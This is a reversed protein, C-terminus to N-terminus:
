DVNILDGALSQSNDHFHSPRSYITPQPLPLKFNVDVPCVHIIQSLGNWRLVACSEPLNMIMNTDILNREGKRLSRKDSSQEAWVGNVELNRVEEDIHITGTSKAISEALDIDNSRYNVHVGANEIVSSIVSDPDMDKPCNRLDTYSQSAIAMHCGMKRITALAETSQPSVSYKYEDIVFFVNPGEIEESNRKELAHIVALVFLRQLKLVRPNRTSGRVYIISKKQIADLLDLGHDINVVPMDVLQALDKFFKKSETPISSDIKMLESIFQAPRLQKNAAVKSFAIAADRDALRHVDAIDFNDSLGFVAACLEEIENQTQSSWPNWQPQDGNLDIYIFPRKLRKSYQELARLAINDSNPDLYITAQGKLIAQVMLSQLIVGKGSGTPGTVAIHQKNVLTDIISIIKNKLGKGFFFENKSFLKNSLYKRKTNPFFSKLNRVDTKGPREISSVQVFKTKSWDLISTTLRLYIVCLFVTALTNLFFHDLFSVPLNFKPLDYSQLFWDLLFPAPVILFSSSFLLISIKLIFSFRWWILLFIALGFVIGAQEYYDQSIYIWGELFQGYFGKLGQLLNHELVSSKNM